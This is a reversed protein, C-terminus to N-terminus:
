GNGGKGSGAFRPLRPFPGIEMEASVDRAQPARHAAAEPGRRAPTRVPAVRRGSTSRRRLICDREFTDWLVSHHDATYPAVPPVM